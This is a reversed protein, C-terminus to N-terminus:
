AAIEGVTGARAAGGVLRVRKLRSATGSELRIASRPLDFLDAIAAIVAANAAGDTAKARVKLRLVAGHPGETMGDFGAERAGPTVRLSLILDDGDIRYAEGSRSM